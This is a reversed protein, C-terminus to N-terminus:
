SKANRILINKVGGAHWAGGRATAIGRANLAASIGNLSTIGAEQISRIIPAINTAFRAALEKNASAGRMSAMRQEPKRSPISWGLANGRMKSAALAAKTRESIKRAEWEGFVAAMQLFTVDAEPMDVAIFKVRSELLASVFAVNRALRDLKAILLVSKSRRCLELAALLQPRDKRRGSEVETYERLLDGSVCHLHELIAKRQADLGLGSRGQRDTSVRYYTVYSNQQM